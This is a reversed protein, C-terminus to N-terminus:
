LVKLTLLTIDDDLHESGSFRRAEEVIARNFDGPAMGRNAGLFARIRATGYLEESDAMAAESLGDTYMFLVDGPELRFDHEDWEFDPFLGIPLGGPELEVVEGGSRAVLPPMHGASCYSFQGAGLDLVAYLLTVFRGESFVQSAIANLNTVLQKPSQGTQSLQRFNSQLNSMLLAASIGKGCVDAILLGVRGQGLDVADYYDGGIEKCPIQFGALDLGDLEPMTEPQLHQQIEAAKKLDSSIEELEREQVESVFRMRVYNVALGAVATFFVVGIHFGAPLITARAAVLVIGIVALGAIVAVALAVNLALRRGLATLSAAFALAVGLALSGSSPFPAVVGKGILTQTAYALVLVGPLKNGHETAPLGRIPLEYIDSLSNETVGVLVAKGETKSEWGEGTLIDIYPITTIGGRVMKYDIYFPLDDGPACIEDDTVASALIVPMSPLWEGQFSRGYSSRRVALDGDVPMNVLGTCYAAAPMREVPLVLREEAIATGDKRIALNREEVASALCVMGANGMATVIERIELAPDLQDFLIDMAIAAVGAGDLREIVRAHEAVHASVPFEPPPFAKRRSHQDIAVVVVDSDAQLAPRVSLGLDYFMLDITDFWHYQFAIVAFAAGAVAVLVLRVRPDILLGLM